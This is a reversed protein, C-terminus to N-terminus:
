AIGVVQYGSTRLHRRQLVPTIQAGEVEEVQVVVDGRGWQHVGDDCFYWDYRASWTQASVCDKLKEIKQTTIFCKNSLSYAYLM